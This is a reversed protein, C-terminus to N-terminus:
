QRHEARTGEPGSDPHPRREEECFVLSCIQWSEGNRHWQWHQWHCHCKALCALLSRHQLLQLAPSTAFVVSGSSASM